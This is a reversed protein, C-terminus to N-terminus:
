YKFCEKVKTCLEEEIFPSLYLRFHSLGDTRKQQYENQSLDCTSLNGVREVWMLTVALERQHLITLFGLSIFM